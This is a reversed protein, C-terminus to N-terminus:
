IKNKAFNNFNQALQLHLKKVTIFLRNYVIM